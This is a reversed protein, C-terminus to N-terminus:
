RKLVSFRYVITNEYTSGPDLRASPFDPHNPADPFLQPELVIADGQRYVKGGKGVITGDFFNGSYFQVGPAKTLIEMVRGSQPDTFRVATRLQGPTGNLVFNHDYGRGYLIQPERGDRIRTGIPTPERFDFPTGAVSRLEGTPILLQDVPTFKAANIQLLQEMVSRGSSEGALNFYSHNSINVITPADTTAKYQVGFENRDNLTYIALVHLNGPYGEEGAPSLYSFTATATPGNHVSDIHWVVKDFGRLGGHLSNGHDNAALTYAHGDLTFRGKAIRNAFRGVTAGFFQPKDLFEQATAYGLVIDASNGRNDPVSLSQVAAGLTMLRVTIGTGNKLTVTEIATGNTLKGFAERQAEAAGAVASLFTLACAAAGVAHTRLVRAM